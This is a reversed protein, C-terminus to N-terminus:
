IEWESGADSVKKAYIDLSGEVRSLIVNQARQLLLPEAVNTQKAFETQNHIIPVGRSRPGAPQSRVESKQRGSQIKQM